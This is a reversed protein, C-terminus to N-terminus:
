AAEESLYGVQNGNADVILGALNELLNGLDPDIEGPSIIEGLRLYEAGRQVNEDAGFIARDNTGVALTPLNLKNILGCTGASPQKIGIQGTEPDYLDRTGAPAMLIINGPQQAIERIQKLFKKRISSILQELGPINGNKTDPVTKLLNGLSMPCYLGQEYTTLAPGLVTYIQERSIGLARNLALMIIPFNIWTAHNTAILLSNNQLIEKIEERRNQFEALVEQFNKVLFYQLTPGVPVPVEPLWSALRYPATRGSALYLIQQPDDFRLTTKPNRTLRQQWYHWNYRFETDTIARGLKRKAASLVTRIHQKPAFDLGSDALTTEILEM